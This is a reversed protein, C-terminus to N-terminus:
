GAERQAGLVEDLPLLAAGLVQDSLVLEDPLPTKVGGKGLDVPAPVTAEHDTIWIWGDPTEVPWICPRTAADWPIGSRGATEGLDILVATHASASKLYGTYGALYLAMSVSQAQLNRDLVACTLLAIQAADKAVIADRLKAGGMACRKSLDLYAAQISSAWPHVCTRARTQITAMRDKKPMLRGTRIQAYAAPDMNGAGLQLHGGVLELAAGRVMLDRLVTELDRDVAHASTLLRPWLRLQEATTYIM